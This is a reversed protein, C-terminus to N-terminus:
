FWFGPIIVAPLNAVAHLLIAYLLFVPKKRTIAMLVVLSLAIHIFITFARELGAVLFLHTPLEILQEKLIVAMEPTIQPALLEDFTGSKIM